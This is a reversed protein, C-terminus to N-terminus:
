ALYAELYPTLVTLVRCHAAYERLQSVSADPRRLYERLGEQAVALGILRRYKWCDVVTKAPNTMPVSAMGVPVLILGEFCAQATKVIVCPPAAIKPVWAHRPQVLYVKGPNATTLGHYALASVLGIAAHPAQAAAEAFEPFLGHDADALRYIGRRLRQVHGMRLLRALVAPISAAAVGQRIEAQSAVGHHGALFALIACELQTLNETTSGKPASM